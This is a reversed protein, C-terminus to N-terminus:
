GIPSAPRRPVPRAADSGGQIRRRHTVGSGPASQLSRAQPIAARHPPARRRRPCRRLRRCPPRVNSYGPRARPTNSPWDVRGGGNELNSNMLPKHREVCNRVYQGCDRDGFGAANMDDGRVGDRVRVPCPGPDGACALLGESVGQEGTVFEHQHRAGYRGM